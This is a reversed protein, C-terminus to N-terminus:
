YCHRYKRQIGLCGEREGIQEPWEVGKSGKKVVKAAGKLALEMSPRDVFVVVATGGSRRVVRDWVKPLEINKPEQDTAKEGRKRKKSKKPDQVAAGVAIPVADGELIVREVRGGDVSAFLSRLQDETADVPLNAAFISRDSDATPLKPEHRRVYIYHSAASSTTTAPLIVPFVIYKNVTPPIPPETSSTVPKPM